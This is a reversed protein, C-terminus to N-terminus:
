SFKYSPYKQKLGEVVQRCLDKVGPNEMFIMQPLLIGKGFNLENEIFDFDINKKLVRILDRVYNFHDYPQKLTNLTRIFEEDRIGQWIEENSLELRGTMYKIGLEAELEYRSLVGYIFNGVFCFNPLDPHFVSRYMVCALLRNKKDFQVTRLIDESLFSYDSNYGTGLLVVEAEVTRGDTLVLGNEYFHSAEGQVVKIKGQAVATTYEECLVYLNVFNSQIFEDTLEWEPTIDSPNGLASVLIKCKKINQSLSPILEYPNKLEPLRYYFFEYPIGKNYKHLCISTAKYVQTVSSAVKSAELAVDSATSSKGVTVVNKGNFVEPSRYKGGEVIVGKFTESHQLPNTEESYKGSAVIVYDFEKQETNEESKWTVLYGKNSREVMTVETNFKFYQMLDHKECYLCIYEYVEYRSPYDQHTEPWPLDSFSMFYKHTNTTMSDWTGIQGPLCNWIGGPRAKKEFITPRINYEKCIKASVIGSFGGGIICVEM